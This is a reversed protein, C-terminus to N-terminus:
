KAIGVDRRGMTVIHGLTCGACGCPRPPPAYAYIGLAPPGSDHHQTLIMGRRLASQAPSIKGARVAGITEDRHWDGWSFCHM